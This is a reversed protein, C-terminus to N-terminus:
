ESRLSASDLFRTITAIGKEGVPERYPRNAFREEGGKDECIRPGMKAGEASADMTPARGRGVGGVGTIGACLRDGHLSPRADM